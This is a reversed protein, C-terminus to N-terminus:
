ASDHLPPLPYRALENLLHTRCEELTGYTCAKRRM